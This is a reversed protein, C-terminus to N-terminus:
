TNPWGVPWKECHTKESEYRAEDTEIESKCRAQLSFFQGKEIPKGDKGIYFSSRTNGPSPLTELEVGVSLVASKIDGISISNKKLDEDLWAQIELGINLPEIVNGNFKSTGSLVDILLEGTGLKQIAEYSNM